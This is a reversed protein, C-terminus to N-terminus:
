RRCETKFPPMSLPPPGSVNEGHEFVIGDIVWRDAYQWTEIGYALPISKLFHSPIGVEHARKFVRWTHNSICVKTKPWRDFWPKIRERAIRFEDGGSMGDPDPLSKGRLTHQDFEDGLNVVEVKEAGRAFTKEVHCVFDFADQHEFPIQLDSIGLICEM